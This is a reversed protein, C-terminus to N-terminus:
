FYSINLIFRYKILTISQQAFHQLSVSIYVHLFFCMCHVACFPSASLFNQFFSLSSVFLLSLSLSPSTIFSPIKLNFDRLQQLFGAIFIKCFRSPEKCVYIINKVAGRTRKYGCIERTYRAFTIHRVKTKTGNIQEEVCQVQRLRSGGGCSASCPGWEGAHWRTYCM